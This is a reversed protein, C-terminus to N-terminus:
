KRAPRVAANMSKLWDDSDVSDAYGARNAALPRGLRDLILCIATRFLVNKRVEQQKQV